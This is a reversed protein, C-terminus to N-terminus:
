TARPVTTGSAPSRWPRARPSLKSLRSRLDRHSSCIMWSACNRSVTRRRNRASCACRAAVEVARRGRWGDRRRCRRHDRGGIRSRPVAGARRVAVSAALRIRVAHRRDGGTPRSTGVGPVDPVSGIGCACGGVLRPRTRRDSHHPRASVGGSVAAVLASSGSGCQKQVAAATAAQSVVLRYRRAPYGAGVPEAGSLREEPRTGCVRVRGGTPLVTQRLCVQAVDPLAAHAGAAFGGGSHRQVAHCLRDGARRGAADRLRGNAARWEGAAGDVPRRGQQRARAGAAAGVSRGAGVTYRKPPLM